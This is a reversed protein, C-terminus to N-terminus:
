TGFLSIESRLNRFVRPSPTIEHTQSAQPAVSPGLFLKRSACRDKSIIREYDMYKEIEEEPEDQNEEVLEEKEHKCHKIYLKLHSL